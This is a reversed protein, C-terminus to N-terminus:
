KATAELFVKTHHKYEDPLKEFEELAIKYPTTVQPQDLM